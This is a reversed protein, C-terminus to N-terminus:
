VCRSTYLLCIYYLEQIKAASTSFRQLDNLLNGLERMPNSLAWSLSTFVALEGPTMSTYLLCDHCLSYRFHTGPDFLLPKQVFAAALQRTAAAQGYKALCARIPESDTDYDLGGQMTMLHEVTMVTRAPRVEGGDLVTLDAYEPLYKSRDRICM